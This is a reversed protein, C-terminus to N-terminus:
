KNEGSFLRIPESKEYLNFKCSIDFGIKKSFFILFCIEVHRSFNKGLLSLTLRIATQIHYPVVLLSSWRSLGVSHVM